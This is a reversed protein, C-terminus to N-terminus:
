TSWGLVGLVAAALLLAALDRWRLPEREIRIPAHDDNGDDALWSRWGPQTDSDVLRLVLLTRVAVRAAPFGVVAFPRMLAYLAAVLREAPLREMLVAVCLVVALVRAAHEIALQVGERSPSLRPWDLLLAEGPTFGAFLIVIALLLFRVRRLLRLSRRPALASAVAACLILAALLAGFDLLQLVAVGALWLGILVGSHM